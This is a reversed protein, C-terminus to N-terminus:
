AGSLRVGSKIFVCTVCWIFLIFQNLYYHNCPEGFTKMYALVLNLTFKMSAPFMYRMGKPRIIGAISKFTKVRILVLM